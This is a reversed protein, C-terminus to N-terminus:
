RVHTPAPPRHDHWARRLERSLAQWAGENKLDASTLDLAERLERSPTAGELQLLLVSERARRLGRERESRLTRASEPAPALPTPKGARDEALDLAATQQHLRRSGALAAKELAEREAATLWSCALVGRLENVAAPAAHETRASMGKWRDAQLPQGLSNLQERLTAARDDLKKLMEALAPEKSEPRALLQDLDRATEVAAKWVPEKSRDSELYPPYGPLRALGDDRCRYAEELLRISRHIIQYERVAEGLLQTANPWLARERGLLLREGDRRKENVRDRTPMIWPLARRDCLSARESERAAQLAAQVADGPWGEPQTRAGEALQLLLRTEHFSPMPKGPERAAQTLLEAAVRIHEPRLAPQEAVVEFLTWALEFPKGAFKKLFEKQGALLKERDKAAKEKEKEDPKAMQARADLEALDQFRTRVDDATLDPAKLGQAVAQALSRPEMKSAANAEDRQRQFREISTQTVARIREPKTGGRWHQEARLLRTELQLYALPPVRAGRAARWEDLLEWGAKLWDPYPEPEFEPTEVPQTHQVGVLSFDDGGGLLVPTQRTARNHEAWRDVRAKVFTAAERASVRGDRKQRENCGDARGSLAQRLYYGFVSQGAADLDLSVQGPSATCLILLKPDEKLAAEATAHVREAADSRLLGALPVVIPRMVDLILLRHEARCRSVLALVERLSLWTSPQDLRADGPLLYVEGDEGPVAFASLYVVLPQGSQGELQHLAALLLHREQRAFANKQQWPLELLAERDQAAWSSVPVSPDQYQDIWLAVFQAQAFPQLWWIVGAIAGALLLMAAVLAAM